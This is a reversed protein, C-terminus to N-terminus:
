RLMTIVNNAFFCEYVVLLVLLPRRSHRIVNENHTVGMSVVMKEWGFWLAVYLTLRVIMWVPSNALHHLTQVSLVGSAVLVIAIAFLTVVMVVSVLKVHKRTASPKTQPIDPFPKPNNM